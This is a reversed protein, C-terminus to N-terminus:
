QSSPIFPNQNWENELPAIFCFSRILGKETWSKKKKKSIFTPKLESLAAQKREINKKPITRHQTQSLKYAPFTANWTQLQKKRPRRNIDNEELKENKQNIKLALHPQEWLWNTRQNKKITILTYCTKGFAPMWTKEGRKERLLKMEEWRKEKFHTRDSGTAWNIKNVFSYEKNQSKTPLSLPKEIRTRFGSSFFYISLKIKKEKQIHM